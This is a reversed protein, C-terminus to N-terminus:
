SRNDDDYSLDITTNIDPRKLGVINCDEILCRLASEWCTYRNTEEAYYEPKRGTSMYRETATHIHFKYSVDTNELPNIHPHDCGNYRVLTIPENGPIEIRIGCSFNDPLISNQRIYLTYKRKGDSSLLNFNKRKSKRQEKWQAKPNQVTKKESLFDTIQQDSYIISM